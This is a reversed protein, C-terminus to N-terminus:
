ANEKKYADQLLERPNTFTIQLRPKNHNAHSNGKIKRRHKATKKTIPSVPTSNTRPSLWAGEMTSQDVNTQGVGSFWTYIHLFKLM